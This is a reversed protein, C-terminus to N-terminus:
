FLRYVFNSTKIMNIGKLELIALYEKISSLQKLNNYPLNEYKKSKELILPYLNKDIKFISLKVTGKKIMQLYLKKDKVLSYDIIKEINM